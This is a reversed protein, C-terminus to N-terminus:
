SMEKAGRKELKFGKLTEVYHTSSIASKIEKERENGGCSM